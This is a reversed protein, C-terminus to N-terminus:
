FFFFFLFDLKFIRLEKEWSNCPFIHTMFSFSPGYIISLCDSVVSSNLIRSFFITLCFTTRLSNFFIFLYNRSKFDTSSLRQQYRTQNTLCVCFFVDSDLDGERERERVIEHRLYVATRVIYHRSLHTCCYIHTVCTQFM